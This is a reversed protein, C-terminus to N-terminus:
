VKRARSAVRKWAPRTNRSPSAAWRVGGNMPWPRPAPSRSASLRAQFIACTSVPWAASSRSAVYSASRRGCARAMILFATRTPQAIVPPWSRAAATRRTARAAATRLARRRSAMAAVAVGRSFVPARCCVERRESRALTGAASRGPPSIGLGSTVVPSPAGTRSSAMRAPRAATSVPRRGSASSAPKQWRCPRTRTCILLVVGLVLFGRCGAASGSASRMSMRRTASWRAAPRCTKAALGASVTM